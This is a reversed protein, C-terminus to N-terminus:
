CTTTEHARKICVMKRKWSALLGAGGADRPKGSAHESAQRIRNTTDGRSDRSSSGVSRAETLVKNSETRFTICIGPEILVHCDCLSVM